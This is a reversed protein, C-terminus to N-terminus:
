HSIEHHITLSGYRTAPPTALGKGLVRFPHGRQLVVCRRALMEAALLHSKSLQFQSAARGIAKTKTHQQPTVHLTQQLPIRDYECIFLLLLFCLGIGDAGSM